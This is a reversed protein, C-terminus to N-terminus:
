CSHDMMVLVSSVHSGQQDAELVRLECLQFEQLHGQLFSPGLGRLPWAVLPPPVSTVGLSLKQRQSAPLFSLIAREVLCARPLNSRTESATGPSSELRRIREPAQVRAFSTGLVFARLLQLVRAM